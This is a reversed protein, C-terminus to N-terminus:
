SLTRGIAVLGGAEEDRSLGRLCKRQTQPVQADHTERQPPPLSCSHLRSRERPRVAHMSASYHPVTWHSHSPPRLETETRSACTSWLRFFLAGIWVNTPGLLHDKAEDVWGRDRGGRVCANNNGGVWRQTGRGNCGRGGCGPGRADSRSPTGLESACSYPPWSPVLFAHDCCTFLGPSHFM